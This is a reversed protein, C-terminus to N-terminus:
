LPASDTGPDPLSRKRAGGGDARRQACRCKGRSRIKLELAISPDRDALSLMEKAVRHRFKSGDFRDDHMQSNAVM